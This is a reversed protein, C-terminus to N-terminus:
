SEGVKSFEQAAFIAESNKYYKFELLNNAPDMLFFSDHEIFEGAFRCTPERFFSVQNAKATEILAHWSKKDAFILGFHRPYISDQKEPLTDVRHAVLQNDFFNIIFAHKSERGLQLGLKNIYFDKGAQLDQMPFAVHFANHLQDMM